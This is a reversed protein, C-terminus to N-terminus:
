KFNTIDDVTGYQQDRGANILIYSDARYPRASLQGYETLGTGTNLGTQDDWIYKIFEDADDVRDFKPHFPGDPGTDETIDLNDGYDYIKSITRGSKRARYYLIARGGDTALTDRFVPNDNSVPPDGSQEPAPWRDSDPHAEQMTGIKLTELKVYPGWRKTERMEGAADDWAIPTGDPPDGLGDAVDYYHGEQFGLFDLGVLSEVVRHAGQDPPLPGDFGMALQLTEPTGTRLGSKPYHNMDNAFAEIAVEISSLATRNGLERARIRAENLAPLALGLLLSIIAIVVLLEVLTFAKNYRSM